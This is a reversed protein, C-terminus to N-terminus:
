PLTQVGYDTTYSGNVSNTPIKEKVMIQVQRGPTTPDLDGTIHLAPTSYTDAASIGVEAGANDAQASSIEINGAALITAADVTDISNGFKMSLNQEGSPVTISFVYSWGNTYTDDATAHNQVPTVSTVALLGQSSSATGGTVTGGTTGGTTSATLNSCDHNWVIVYKNNTLGTFSPSMMSSSAAAAAALTDGWSYGVLSFPQNASCNNGVVTGGTIENTAYNAGSAMDSTMAQYSDGVNLEYNGSMQAGGNLNSATTTSVMPFDANNTSTATALLGDVYKAISVTVTTPAVVVPVCYNIVAKYLLGTPNSGSPATFNRLVFDLTNPTGVTPTFSSTFVQSFNSPDSAPTPGYVDETTSGNTTSVATASGNLYVAAANDAAYWINASSVVAGAPLSFNEQFLRWQDNQASGETNGAGGPWTANTSLWEAGGSPAFNADSSPEIWPPVVAQTLTAAVFSGGGSYYTPMLAVAANVPNTETFGATQTGGGSTLTMVSCTQTPTNTGSTTITDAFALGPVAVVLTLALTSLALHKIFRTKM